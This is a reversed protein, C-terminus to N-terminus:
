DKLATVAVFGLVAVISIVGLGLIITKTLAAKSKAAEQQALLSTTLMNQAAVDSERGRVMALRESKETAKMQERQSQVNMYTTAVSAGATAIDGAGEGLGGIGFIDFGYDRRAFSPSSPRLYSVNWDPNIYM